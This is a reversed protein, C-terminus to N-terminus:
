CGYFIPLPLYGMFLQILFEKVGNGRCGIGRRIWLFDLNYNDLPYTEFDYVANKGGLTEKIWGAAEVLSPHFFFCGDNHSSKHFGTEPSYNFIFGKFVM